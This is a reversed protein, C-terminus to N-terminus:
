PTTRHIVRDLRTHVVRASRKSPQHVVTFSNVVVRGCPQGCGALTVWRVTRRAENCTPVKLPDTKNELDFLVRGAAPSPGSGPPTYASGRPPRLGYGPCQASSSLAAQRGTRRKRRDLLSRCRPTGSSRAKDPGTPIGACEKGRSSPGSCGCLSDYISCSRLRQNTYPPLSM